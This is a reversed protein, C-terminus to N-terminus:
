GTSPYKEEVDVAYVGFAQKFMKILLSVKPSLEAGRLAVLNLAQKSLVEDALVQVVSHRRILHRVDVAPLFGIGGGSATMESLLHLDDSKIVKDIYQEIAPANFKNTLWLTRPSPPM